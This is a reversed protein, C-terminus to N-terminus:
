THWIHAPIFKDIGNGGMGIVTNGNGDWDWLLIFFEWKRGCFYKLEWQRRNGNGCKTNLM